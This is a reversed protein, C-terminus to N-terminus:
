PGFHGGDIALASNTVGIVPLGLHANQGAFAMADDLFATALGTIQLAKVVRQTLTQRAQCALGKGKGFLEGIMDASNPEKNMM